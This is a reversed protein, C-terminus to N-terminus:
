SRNIILTDKEGNDSKSDIGIKIIAVTTNDQTQKNAKQVSQLIRFADNAAPWNVGGFNYTNEIGEAGITLIGDSTQIIVDGEEVPINFGHDVSPLHEGVLASTLCNKMPEAEFEDHSIQGQELKESLIQGITHIKNLQKISGKRYLFILSDGVSIFHLQNGCIYVACLTTGMDNLQTNSKKSKKVANNASNLAQVLAEPQPILEEIFSIVFSRVANESAIEGGEYGGMGDALVSLLAEEEFQDPPVFAYFDQQNLRSGLIQAGAFDFSFRKALDTEKSYEASM